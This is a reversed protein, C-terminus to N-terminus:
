KPAPFILVSSKSIDKEEIKRVESKPHSPKGNHANVPKYRATAEADFPEIFDKLFTTMGIHQVGDANYHSHEKEYFTIGGESRLNIDRNPLLDIMSENLM